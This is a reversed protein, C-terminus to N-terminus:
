AIEPLVAFETVGIATEDSFGDIGHQAALARERRAAAIVHGRAPQQQRRQRAHLAHVPAFQVDDQAFDFAFPQRLGLGDPQFVQRVRHAEVQGIPEMLHQAVLEGDFIQFLQRGAEILRCREIQADVQELGLAVRHQRAEVGVPQRGFGTAVRRDANAQGALGRERAMRQKEIATKFDLILATLQKAEQQLRLAALHDRIEAGARTSLGQQEAGHHTRLAPKISEIHRFLAEGLQLRTQRARSQRIHMRHADLGFVVYLDLAQRALEIAHQDVRRTGAKTGQAAVGIQLPPLRRLANGFEVGFLRRNETRSGPQYFFAPPQDVGGATQELGLVLVDNRSKERRMRLEDRKRSGINQEFLADFDCRHFRGVLAKTKQRM